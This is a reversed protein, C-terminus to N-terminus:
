SAVAYTLAGVGAASIAVTPLSLITAQLISLQSRLRTNEANLALLYADWGAATVPAPLQPASPKLYPVALPAFATLLGGVGAVGAGINLGQGKRRQSRSAGLGGGVGGLLTGLAMSSTSIRREETTIAAHLEICQQSIADCQRRVEAVRQAEVAANRARDVEALNRDRDRRADDLTWRQREGEMTLGHKLEALAIDHRQAGEVTAAKSAAAELEAVRTLSAALNREAEEVRTQAALQAAHQEASQRARLQALRDPGDGRPTTDPTDGHPSANPATNLDVM